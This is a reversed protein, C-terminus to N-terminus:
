QGGGKQGGVRRAGVRRWLKLVVRRAGVPDM